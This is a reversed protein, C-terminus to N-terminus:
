KISKLFNDVSIRTVKEMDYKEVKESRFVGQQITFFSISSLFLRVNIKTNCKKNFGWDNKGREVTKEIPEFLKTNIIRYLTLFTDQKYMCIYLAFKFISRKLYNMKYAQILFAVLTARFDEENKVSSLNINSIITLFKDVLYNLITDKTKFYKFVTAESVTSKEAIERTRVQPFPKKDILSLTSDIIKNKTDKPM